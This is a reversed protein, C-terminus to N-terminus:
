SFASLVAAPAPAHRLRLLPPRRPRCARRGAPDADVVVDSAEAEVVAPTPSPLAATEDDDDIHRRRGAPRHELGPAATSPPWPAATFGRRSSAGARTPTPTNQSRWPCSALLGRSLAPARRPRAAAKPLLARLRAAPRPPADCRPPRPRPRPTSPALGAARCHPPRASPRSRPAPRGARGSPSPALCAPGCRLM